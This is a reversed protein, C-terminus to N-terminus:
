SSIKITKESFIKQFFIGSPIKRPIGSPINRLIGTRIETLFKKKDLQLHWLNVINM